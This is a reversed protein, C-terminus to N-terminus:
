FNRISYGTTIFQGRYEYGVREVVGQEVLYNGIARVKHMSWFLKKSAKKIDIVSKKDMCALFCMIRLDRKEMPTM